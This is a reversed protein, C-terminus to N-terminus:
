KIYSLNDQRIVEIIESMANNLTIILQLLEEFTGEYDRTKDDSINDGIETFVNHISLIKPVLSGMDYKKVIDDFNYYLEIANFNDRAEQGLVVLNRAHEQITEIMEPTLEEKQEIAWIIISLESRVETLWAMAKKSTELKNQVAIRHIEMKHQRKTTILGGIWTLVIAIVSGLVAYLFETM